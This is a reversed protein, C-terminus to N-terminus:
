SARASRIDRETMCLDRDKAIHRDGRLSIGSRYPAIYNAPVLDVVRNFILLRSPRDAYLRDSHLLDFLLQVLVLTM